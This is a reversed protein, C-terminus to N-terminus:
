TSCASMSRRPRRASASRSPAPSPRRRTSWSGSRTRGPHQHQRGARLSGARDALGARFGQVSRLRAQQLPVPEDGAHRRDGDAAHLRRAQGQRGGPRRHHHQRGAPQRRRDAPRSGREDEPRDAPRPFRGTRRARVARRAHDAAVSLDAGARRLRWARSRCFRVAGAVRTGPLEDHTEHETASSRQEACGPAADIPRAAADAAAPRAGLAAAQM